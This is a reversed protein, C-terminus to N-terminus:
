STGSLEINYSTIETLMGLAFVYIDCSAVASMDSEGGSYTASSEVVVCNDAVIVKFTDFTTAVGSLYKASKKCARIVAEKGELHEGGVTAWRVEDSLYPFTDEFAHSSFSRAIQEISHNM